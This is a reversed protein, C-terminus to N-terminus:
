SIHITTFLPTTDKPLKKHETTALLLLTARLTDLFTRLAPKPGTKDGNPLRAMLVKTSPIYLTYHEKTHHQKTILNNWNNHWLEWLPSFHTLIKNSYHMPKCQQRIMKDHEKTGM